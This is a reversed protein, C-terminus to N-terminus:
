EVLEVLLRYFVSDDPNLEADYVHYDMDARVDKRLSVLSSENWNGDLNLSSQLRLDVGVAGPYYPVWLELNENIGQQFFIGSKSSDVENPNMGLSYALLNSVGSNNSVQTAWVDLDDIAEDSNAAAWSAFDGVIYLTVENREGISYLSGSLPDGLSVDVTKRSGALNVSSNPVLKLICYTEGPLLFVNGSRTVSDISVPLETGLTNIASVSYDSLNTSGHFEIPVMTVNSSPPGSLQLFILAEPNGDSLNAKPQVADINVVITQTMLIMQATTSSELQYDVGPELRLAIVNTGESQAYRLATIPILIDETGSSLTHQTSVYSYDTGNTATGQMVVDFTLPVDTVGRRSIRFGEGTVTPDTENVTPEILLYPLGDIIHVESSAFAEDITFRNPQPVPDVVIPRVAQSQQNSVPQVSLKINSDGSDLSVPVRYDYLETTEYAGTNANYLDAFLQFDEGLVLDTDLNLHVLKGEPWAAGSVNLHILAPDDDVEVAEADVTIMQLELAPRVNGCDLAGMAYLSALHSQNLDSRDLLRVIADPVDNTDGKLYIEVLSDLGDARINVFSDIDDSVLGSFLYQFDLVDGEDEVFDAIVQEQGGVIYVFRDAGAGGSLWSDGGGVWFEEDAFGGYVTVNRNWGLVVHSVAEGYDPVFDDTYESDTLLASPAMFFLPRPSQLADVVISDKWRAMLYAQQDAFDYGTLVEPFVLLEHLGGEFYHDGLNSGLIDVGPLDSVGDLEFVGATSSGNVSFLKEGGNLSANLLVLDGVVTPSESVLTRDTGTLELHGPFRLDDAAFIGIGGYPTDLLQQQETSDSTFAAVIHWGDDAMWEQSAASYHTSGDFPVVTKGGVVSTSVSTGFIDVLASGSDIWAILDDGEPGAPNWVYIPIDASDVANSSDTVTISISGTSADSGDHTLLVAGAILQALTFSDGIVLPQYSDRGVGFAATKQELSFQSSIADLTITLGAQQSLDPLGSGLAPNDDLDAIDFRLITAGGFIANLGDSLISPASDAVSPDTQGLYEDGNSVTDNDLDDDADAVLKDLGSYADEYEDPMGDGDTDLQPLHVELDIRFYGGRNIQKLKLADSSNREITVPYVVGLYELSITATAYREVEVGLDVTTDAPFLPFGVEAPIEIDYSFDTDSDLDALDVEFDLSKDPGDLNWRLTGEDITTPQSGSTDTINGYVIFDPEPIGGPVWHIPMLIAAMCFWAISHQHM